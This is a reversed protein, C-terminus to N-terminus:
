LCPICGTQMKKKNASTPTYASDRLSFLTKFSGAPEYGLSEPTRQMRMLYDNDKWSAQQLFDSRYDDLTTRMRKAPIGPSPSRSTDVEAEWLGYGNADGFTTFDGESPLTMKSARARSWFLGQWIDAEKISGGVM